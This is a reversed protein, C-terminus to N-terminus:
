IDNQPQKLLGRAVLIAGILIPLIPWLRYLLEENIIWLDTLAFFAGLILLISGPILLGVDQPKLAYLAFFALGVIILIITRMEFELLFDGITRFNLMFYYFGLLFCIVGPFIARPKNKSIVSLFFMVGILMLVGPVLYNFGILWDTLNGVLLVAGIIILLLGVILHAKSAKM